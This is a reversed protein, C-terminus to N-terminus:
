HNLNWRRVLKNPKLSFRRKRSFQTRFASSHIPIILTITPRTLVRLADRWIMLLIMLRMLKRSHPTMWCTVRIPSSMKRSTQDVKRSLISSLKSFSWKISMKSRNLQVQSGIKSKVVVKRTGLICQSLGTLTLRRPSVSVSSISLIERLHSYNMLKRTLKTLFTAVLRPDKWEQQISTQLMWNLDRTNTSINKNTRSVLPM